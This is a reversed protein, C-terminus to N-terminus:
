GAPRVVLVDCHAGHLIETSVSGLVASTIAGRGRSGTVILDAGLDEAVTLIGKGAPGGIVWGSALLDPDVRGIAENLDKRAMARKEPKALPPGGPAPSPVKGSVAEVLTLSAGDREAIEAARSLAAKAGDSGDYAIVVNRYM